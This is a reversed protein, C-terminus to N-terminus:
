LLSLIWCFAYPVTSAYESESLYNVTRRTSYWTFPPHRKVSAYAASTLRSLEAKFSAVTSQEVVHSPLSNWDGITRVSFSHRFAQTSSGCTPYYYYIVHYACVESKWLWIRPFWATAHLSTATSSNRQRSTLWATLSTELWRSTHAPPWSNVLLVVRVVVVFWNYQWVGPRQALPFSTAKNVFDPLFWLFKYM